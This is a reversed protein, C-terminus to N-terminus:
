HAGSDVAIFHFHATAFTIHAAIFNKLYNTSLCFLSFFGLHGAVYLVANFCEDLLSILSHFKVFINAFPGCYLIIIITQCVLM